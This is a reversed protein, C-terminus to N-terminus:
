LTELEKEAHRDRNRFSQQGRQNVRQSRGVAGDGAQELGSDWGASQGNAGGDSADEKFIQRATKGPRKM